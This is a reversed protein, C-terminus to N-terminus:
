ESVRVTQTCVRGLHYRQIHVEEPKHHVRRTEGGRHDGDTHEELQDGKEGSRSESVVSVHALYSLCCMNDIKEIYTQRETDTDTQGLM